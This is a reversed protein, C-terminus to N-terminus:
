LYEHPLPTRRPYCTHNIPLALLNTVSSTYMSAYQGLRQSFYSPNHFSRFISGFHENFCVKTLLRLHDREKRWDELVAQGEATVVLQNTLLLDELLALRRLNCRYVETNTIDIEYELEPIVAATAWGWQNSADALDYYVHDGFFLVRQFPWKTFQKLMDLNGGLYFQGKEFKSVGEWSRFAGCEDVARFATTKSRFFDPKNAGVIIVDFLTRWDRGVAFKMGENIFEAGSNSILFLRKGHSCLRELFSRLKPNPNIYLDPHSMIAEHLLGTQHIIQVANRVDTYICEPQFNIGSKKFHEIVSCVTYVAPLSFFDMMQTMHHKETQRDGRLLSSPVYLGNYVSKVTEVPVPQLGRHVTDAQINNFADVKMILGEKIDLHLGRILFNPDFAISLLERPYKWKWVLLHSTKRFIFEALEPTYTVLTFDYDFGYVDLEGLHVEKHVFVAEQDTLRATPPSLCLHEMKKYQRILSEAESVRIKMNEDKESMHAEHPRINQNQPGQNSSISSLQVKRFWAQATFLLRKTHRANMDGALLRLRLVPPSVKDKSSILHEVRVFANLSSM